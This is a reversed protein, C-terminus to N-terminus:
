AVVTLRIRIPLGYKPTVEIEDESIVTVKDVVRRTFEEDFFKDNLKASDLYNIMRNLKENNLEVARQTIKMEDLQMELQSIEDSLEKCRADLYDAGENSKSNASILDLIIKNNEAIKNKINNEEAVLNSGTFMKNLGLKLVGILYDKNHEIEALAQTIADHLVSEEISPSHKCIKKAGGTLREICRWIIKKKGNKSWTTRRYRTGCDGCVTLDSLAYKNTYRGTNTITNVSAADLSNRRAREEQILDFTSKSIIAPHHNEIYVQQRQGVNKIVTRNFCDTRFTKNTLIAGHYKENTLIKQVINKAWKGKDTKSPINRETLYQVIKGISAGDLYMQFILRVTQAESEVIEPQGSEGKRYGLLRNYQIAIRGQMIARDQGWRVNQSIKESEAQSMLSFVGIMFENDVKLTDLKETEFYIGIGIAKLERITLMSDVTNRAFRQFSKTVIYDIKGKHCLKIMKNFEDRKKLSTGTIGEDAFIGAFEWEPNKGIEDKFHKLQANYSTMQEESDTSVRCYAAVRKKHSKGNLQSFDKAPIVTVIREPMATQM